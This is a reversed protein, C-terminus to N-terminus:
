KWEIPLSDIANFYKYENLIKYHGYDINLAERNGLTIYGDETIHVNLRSNKNVEVFFTDRRLGMSEFPPHEVKELELGKFTSMLENILEEDTM